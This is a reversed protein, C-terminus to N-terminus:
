GPVDRVNRTQLAVPGDPLVGFVVAVRQDGENRVENLEGRQSAGWGLDEQEGQSVRPVRGNGRQKHQALLLDCRQPGSHPCGPRSPFPNVPGCQCAAEGPDFLFADSLADVSARAQDGRIYQHALQGRPDM